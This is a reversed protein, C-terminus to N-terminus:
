HLHIFKAVSPVGKANLIFLMYWGRPAMAHPHRGNPAVANLTDAASKHFQVEIVRQESDTQHTVAMPRVLVVKRIEDAQPTEITFNTGHHIPSPAVNKIQPQAGKFLYPPRFVEFTEVGAQYHKGGTALVEATPLLVAVSHYRREYALGDM